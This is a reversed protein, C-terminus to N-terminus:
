TEEGYSDSAGYESPNIAYKKIKRLLTNKPIGAHTATQNIRGTFRRLAQVIFEREFQEKQLHYDIPFEDDESKGLNAGAGTSSPELNSGGRARTQFDNQFHEPLSNLTIYSSNELVFAREIINELERINGPWSHQRLVELADEHIGRIENQTKHRSHLSNFKDIFNKVLNPIDEKRERLAPLEIPMVNLRYFLDQRFQNQRIMEELNRNTAAVIRVDCRIERNSGVPTFKREQLVRLLKVQMAASIDGIEDLFLTGGEAYQFKGIHRQDAGTFAGKEHGFLESEILNEPIAACNVAVFPRDKRLSNFHIARAVLEKGTGNEGRILVSTIVQGLRQIVQFVARMQKSNGIFEEGNDLTLKPSSLGLQHVLVHAESAKRILDELDSEQVPKEIYNYAGERMAEVADRINGHATIILVAVSPDRSRIERLVDLGSMGPMNVDLLVMHFPDPADLNKENDKEPTLIPTREQLLRLADEGTEATLVRHGMSTLIQKLSERLDREDDVVLIRFTRM